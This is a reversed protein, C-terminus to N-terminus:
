SRRVALAHVAMEGMVYTKTVNDITIVPADGNTGSNMDIAQGRADMSDKGNVFTSEPQNVYWDAM